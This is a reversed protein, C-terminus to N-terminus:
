TNKVSAGASALRERVIGLLRQVEVRDISTASDGHRKGSRLAFQRWRLILTKSDLSYSSKASHCASDLNASQAGGKSPITCCDFHDGCVNV